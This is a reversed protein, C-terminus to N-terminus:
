LNFILFMTLPMSNHELMDFVFNMKVMWAIDMMTPQFNKWFREHVKVFHSIHEKLLEPRSLEFIHSLDDGKTPSLIFRRRKTNEVGGDLANTLKEVDFTAKAREQTLVSATGGSELSEVDSPKMVLPKGNIMVQSSISPTTSHSGAAPAPSSGKIKGIITYPAYKAVVDPKHLMNFEETADKGAYILIAKDGGPHEALFKTVDLVQGNVVVWCDDPKNHRAIDYGSVVRASDKTGAQAVSEDWQIQMDIRKANPAVSVRTSVGGNSIIAGIQPGNETSVTQQVSTAPALQSSVASVRNAAQQSPQIAQPKRSSLESFLYRSASDGAVRGFVVCGLLSSGGLRNAGHVGGAVEGACFLGNIVGSPKKVRGEHDIEIGGMTFHLVPTVFAVHFEDNMTFPVNHYFKKGFQDKGAKAVANYTNFTEELAAPQIGMEKALDAGSNFKKMLGRGVYHKCHWEIEKSAKSNLVLRFPGKNKGMEGTVYDRHGLEDCFRKGNADLLLGGVGRLAEAALFKVKSEPEKPDVLGTPHVQVKELDVANGGIALTMKLGDGTSWSGNTTPLHVIDPRHKQLLSDQTFDAAYGGTALVVPGYLQHVKGDQIYEVGVVNQQSDTILRTAKAKKIIQARNPERTAIEELKEMLAYTITMGPFKEKGRHTRPQSHGGLRSVLSLDLGFKEQLWEVASASNYTLVKALEPRLLDRASRATDDYFLEQSDPIGLKRQTNTLAGNIGSTAKTSNGGLYPMKDLVCVRGGRELVTHATSLGSLGG